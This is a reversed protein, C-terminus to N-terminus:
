HQLTLLVNVKARTIERDLPKNLYDIAGEEFGKIMFSNEKKEATAFIIPIDKTRRNSKLVRAIEFGDMGPMQVDLIILDFEQHLALKLAEDGSNAKLFGRGEKELLEEMVLINENRDDVLLIKSITHKAIEM